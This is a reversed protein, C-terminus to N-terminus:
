EGIEKRGYDQPQHGLLQSVQDIIWRFPNAYQYALLVNGRKGGDDFTRTLTDLHRGVRLRKESQGKEIIKRVRFKQEMRM